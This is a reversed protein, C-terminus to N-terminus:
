YFIVHSGTVAKIEKVFCGGKGILAGVLHEPVRMEDVKRSNFDSYNNQFAYDSSYAASTSQYGASNYQYEHQHQPHYGYDQYAYPDNYPYKSPAPPKPTSYKPKPDSINQTSRLPYNYNKGLDPRAAYANPTPYDPYMNPNLNMNSWTSPDFLVHGQQPIDLFDGILSAVSYCALQIQEPTGVVTLVRETSHPLNDGKSFVNAGSAAQM